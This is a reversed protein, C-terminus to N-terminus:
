LSEATVKVARLLQPAGDSEDPDTVDEVVATGVWSNVLSRDTTNTYDYDKLWRMAIGMFARSEGFSAGDPVRPAATGLVYATRHFAYAEDEAIANSQVVTFGAVRGITAEAFADVAKESGINDAKVFRDSVLMAAEVASGVLLTRGAHPVNNDNLIKRAAVATRYPDDNDLTLTEVYSAGTIADAVEDELGEAVARVQPQLIQAGFDKIDLTLEEDTIPAGNYVDTTLKVPVGFEASTDNVIPTGARLTRTRAQRRAPVRITVTDDFAGAFSPIADSWVLRPLVIERYLLGLAQAAIVTPKLFTNAM